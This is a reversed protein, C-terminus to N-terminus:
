FPFGPENVKARDNTIQSYPGLHDEAGGHDTFSRIFIVCDM